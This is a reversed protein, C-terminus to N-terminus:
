VERQKAKLIRTKINLATKYFPKQRKGEEEEKRMKGTQEGRMILTVQLREVKSKGRDIRRERKRSGIMRSSMRYKRRGKERKKEKKIKM